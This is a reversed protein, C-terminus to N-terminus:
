FNEMIWKYGADKEPDPRLVFLTLQTKGEMLMEADEVNKIHKPIKKGNISLIKDGKDLATKHFPGAEVEAVFLEKKHQVISIGVAEDAQKKVSLMWRDMPNYDSTYPRDFDTPVPRHLSRKSDNLKAM